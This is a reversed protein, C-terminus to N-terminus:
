RQHLEPAGTAVFQVFREGYPTMRWEPGTHGIGGPIFVDRTLGERNLLSIMGTAAQDISVRRGDSHNTQCVGAALGQPPMRTLIKVTNLHRYFLLDPLLKPACQVWARITAPALTPVHDGIRSTDEM